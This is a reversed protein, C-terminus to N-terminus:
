ALREALQAALRPHRRRNRWEGSKEQDLEPANHMRACGSKRVSWM